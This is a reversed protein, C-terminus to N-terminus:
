VNRVDRKYVIREGRRVIYVPSIGCFLPLPINQEEAGRKENEGPYIIYESTFNYGSLYERPVAYKKM